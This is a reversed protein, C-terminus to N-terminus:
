CPLYLHLTGHLARIPHHPNWNHYAMQLTELNHAQIYGLPVPVLSFLDRSSQFASM